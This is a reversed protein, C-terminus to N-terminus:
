NGTLRRDEVWDTNLTHGTGTTLRIWGMVVYKSSASGAESITGTKEVYDGNVFYGTEPIADSQMVYRSGYIRDPKIVAPRSQRRTSVIARAFARAIALSGLHGPHIDDVFMGIYDSGVEGVADAFAYGNDACLRAIIARYEGGRHSNTTSFLPPIGFVPIAGAGVIENAIDEMTAAFASPSTSAVIDNTGVMVCVIDYATLDAAQMDAYQDAAKDGSVGFNDGDSFDISGIGEQGELMIKLVDPYPM